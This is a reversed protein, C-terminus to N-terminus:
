HLLAVSDPLSNHICRCSCVSQSDWGCIHLNEYVLAPWVEVEGAPKGKQESTQNQKTKMDKRMSMLKDRKQKLYHEQQRLAETRLTSLTAIPGEMSAHEFGPIKLGKQPLSSTEPLMELKRTLPQVSQNAFHVKVESAAHAFHEGDGQSNNMKATEKAQMPPEETKAESLQMKRKREEEQDYEEKSKRLVEKLIKMEEQELDSVVDSGDTLCDPLVGTIYLDKCSSFYM